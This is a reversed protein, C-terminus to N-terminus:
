KKKKARNSRNNKAQGNKSSRPPPKSIPTKASTASAADPKPLMKREAIGWLSSAIFYLCLGSAVKFFLLGMFLMMYKMIKQQLAAQENAAEPMFMTQQLLFLGVTVLPLVNLYPGLAFMGTGHAIFNPVISSWDFLMDPAALNSCWRIANGLLPAQRLEVDVMLARYLGLFIPLQIFMPLCGALPNIQHKRYLEQMAQSQKQADGKYKEKLKDMEPRLEQMKAMSQAQKRSIPFMCSRVLVTLMIIAIGYNGIIDYFFHLIGLMAKAVSGFWGYYMLDGLTHQPSGSAQYRALLDPRKPGTFIDYSHQLTQGAKLSHAHTILRCTANCYRREAPRKPNPGILVSRTEDIWVQELNEKKPLLVASFYQADVGAYVLPGGQMPEADGTAVAAPGFQVTENGVHRAVIDRIGAASWSRGIKNAYWWGELPLGNPGDLRYAVDTESTGVNRIKLDVQLGYGPYERDQLSDVPVEALSFRKTVELAYRPVIQRFTVSTDSRQQIEWNADRLEVGALELEKLNPDFPLGDRRRQEKRARELKSLNSKGARELTFQFSPPAPLDPPIKGARMMVNESEPRIVELPRRALTVVLEGLPSGGRIVELALQKGPKSQSLLQALDPPASLVTRKGAHVASLLRDGVQLNAAAAPTGTGVAGVLLGATSDAMLELNGLYGGRDHLDRFRDSALEIRRVGAGANTLTALLRFPSDEAVSGLTIYELDVSDPPALDGPPVDDGAGAVPGEEAQDSVGDGQAVNGAAALVDAQDQVEAQQDGGAPALQKRPQHKPAFLMSHLVLVLFSLSIFAVIRRQEM